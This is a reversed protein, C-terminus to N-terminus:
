TVLEIQEQLIAIVDKITLFTQAYFCIDTQFDAFKLILM